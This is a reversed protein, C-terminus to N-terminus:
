YGPNQKINPNVLADAPIPMLIARPDSEYEKLEMPGLFVGFRIRDNRRYGEWWLERARVDLLDDLANINTTSENALQQVINEATGLDGQRAYAEAQMLLADAYRAIVGDNDPNNYGNAYDPIYKVGRIGASEIASGSVVLEIEETFILPNGLRDQLAPGGAPGGPGYQQGIQFGVNYGSQATTTPDWYLIRVDTPDFKNYYESLTTFGNWGSPTQNYHQCMFWRSRINGTIEPSNESVFILETSTQTNDPSFNNWYNQPDPDLSVGSGTIADVHDIVEQMDGNDFTYPGLPDGAQFVGKNLYLKALLWHAANQNAVTPDGGGPLDNIIAELESIVWDTAESRTYVLADANPDSGIERYPAQGWLDIVNYYHLARLFRAEAAQQTTPASDTAGLVLNAQHIAAFLDVFTDRNYAHDSAYTHTHLSRWVGNDDWDGGRTPGVVADTTHEGLAFLRDQNQYPTRLTQYAGSLLDAADRDSVAYQDSIFSEGDLLEEKLDTCSELLLGITFLTAILILKRKKM